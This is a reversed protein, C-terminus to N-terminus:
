MGAAIADRQRRDYIWGLVSFLVVFVAGGIMLETMPAEPHRAMRGLTYGGLYVPIIWTACMGIYLAWCVRTSPKMRLDLNSGRTWRILSMVMGVICVLLFLVNISLVWEQRVVMQALNAICAIVAMACSSQCPYLWWPAVVLQAAERREADPLTRFRATTWLEGNAGYRRRGGSDLQFEAMSGGAMIYDRTERNVLQTFLLTAAGSVAAILAGIWGPMPMIMVVISAGIYVTFAAIVYAWGKRTPPHAFVHVGSKSAGFLLMGIAGCMSTLLAIYAIIFYTDNAGLVDFANNRTAWMFLIVVATAIAVVISYWLPTAFKRAVAERDATLFALADAASLRDSSPMSNRQSPRDPGSSVARVADHQSQAPVPKGIASSAGPSHSNNRNM